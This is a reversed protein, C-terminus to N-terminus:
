NSDLLGLLVKASVAPHVGRRYSAASEGQVSQSKTTPSTSNLQFVLCPQWGVERSGFEVAKTVGTRGDLHFSVKLRWRRDSKEFNPLRIDYEISVGRSINNNLPVAETPEPQNTPVNKALRITAEASSTIDGPPCHQWSWGELASHNVYHLPVDLSNKITIQHTIGAM